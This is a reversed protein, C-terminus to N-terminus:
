QKATVQVARAWFRVVPVPELDGGAQAQLTALREQLAVTGLTALYRRHKAPDPM